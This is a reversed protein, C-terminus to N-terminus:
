KVLLLLQVLTSDEMELGSGTGVPTPSPDEEPGISQIQWMRELGPTM